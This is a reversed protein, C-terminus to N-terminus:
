LEYTVFIWGRNIAPDNFYTSDFVGGSTRSLTILGTSSLRDWTLSGGNLPSAITGITGELKMQSTAPYNDQFIYADINVIKTSDIGYVTLDMTISATTDMNWAGIEIRQSDFASTTFTLNAQLWALLKAWTTNLTASGAKGHAIRTTLQPDVDLGQEFIRNAM